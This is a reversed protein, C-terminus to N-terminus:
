PPFGSQLATANIRMPPLSASQSQKKVLDTVAETLKQILANDLKNQTPAHLKGIEM